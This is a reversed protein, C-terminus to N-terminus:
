VLIQRKGNNEQNRMKLASETIKREFTNGGGGGLFSPEKSVILGYVEPFKAWFCWKFSTPDNLKKTVTQDFWVLVVWNFATLLILM